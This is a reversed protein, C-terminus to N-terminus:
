EYTVPGSAFGGKSQQPPRLVKFELLGVQMHWNIVCSLLEAPESGETLMVLAKLRGLSQAMVKFVLSHGARALKGSAGGTPM